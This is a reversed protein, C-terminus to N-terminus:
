PLFNLLLKAVTFVIWIFNLISVQPVCDQPRDFYIDKKSFPLMEHTVIHISVRHMQPECYCFQNIQELFFAVDLDPVFAAVTVLGDWHRSIALDNCPM